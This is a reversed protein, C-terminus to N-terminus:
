GICFGEAIFYKNRKRHISEIYEKAKEATEFTDLCICVKESVNEQDRYQREILFVSWLLPTIYKIEESM